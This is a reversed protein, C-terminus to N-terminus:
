VGAIVPLGMWALVHLYICLLVYAVIVLRTNRPAHDPRIKEMGFAALPLVQLGHLSAFHAARIDGAVTSWNLFPLGPGGDPAGVTHALIQVMWGGSLGGAVFLLLGARWALLSTGELTVKGRLIISLAYINVLTNLIIFIGMVAFLAGDLPSYINFHSTTGRFAQLYIVVIEVTMTIVLGLTIRRQASPDSICGMLWGFTWSYVAISLAFKMPKIWANIGMVQTGDTFYLIGALAYLGIMLWGFRHLAKSRRAIEVFLGKGM